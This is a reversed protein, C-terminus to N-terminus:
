LSGQNDSNSMVAVSMAATWTFAIGTPDNVPIRHITTAALAFGTSDVTAVPAGGSAPRAKAVGLLTIAAASQIWVEVPKAATIGAAALLTDLTQATGTAATAFTRCGPASTQSM